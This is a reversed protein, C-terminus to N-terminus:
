RRCAVIFGHSLHLCPQTMFSGWLVDTICLGQAESPDHVHTALWHQGATARSRLTSNRVCSMLTCTGCWTFELIGHYLRRLACALRCCFQPWTRLVAVLLQVEASQSEDQKRKSTLKTRGDNSSRRPAGYLLFQRGDQKSGYHRKM